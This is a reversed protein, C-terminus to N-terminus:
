HFENAFNVTDGTGADDQSLNDDEQDDQIVNEGVGTAQDETQYAATEDSEAACLSIAPNAALAGALILGVAVKGKKLKRKM